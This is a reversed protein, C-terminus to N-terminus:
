RQGCPHIKQCSCQQSETATTHYVMDDHPVVGLLELDQNKIEELTGQDLKGQPARNVILGTKKPHFNLDKM